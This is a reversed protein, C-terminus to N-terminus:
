VKWERVWRCGTSFSVGFLSALDTGTCRNSCWYEKAKVYREAYRDQNSKIAHITGELMQLHKINCCARNKCIHDIEHGDPITGRSKEWVLRHFMVLTGRGKSKRLCYM